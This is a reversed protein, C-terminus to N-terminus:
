TKRFCLITYFITNLVKVRHKVALLCFKAHLIVLVQQAIQSPCCLLLVTFGITQISCSLSIMPSPMSTTHKIKILSM